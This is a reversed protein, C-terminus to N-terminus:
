GRFRRLGAIFRITTTEDALDVRRQTTPDTEFSGFLIRRQAKQDCGMIPNHWEDCRPCRARMPM